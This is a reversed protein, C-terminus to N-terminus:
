TINFDSSTLHKVTIHLREKHRVSHGGIGPIGEQRIAQPTPSTSNSFLERISSSLPKDGAQHKSLSYHKKIGKNRMESMDSPKWM